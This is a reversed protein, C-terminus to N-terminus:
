WRRRSAASGAGSARCSAPSRGQWPAASPANRRAAPFRCATRRPWCGRRTAGHADGGGEDQSRDSRRQQRGTQEQQPGGGVELQGNGAQRRDVEGGHAHLRAARAGIRLGHRRRDRRRDLLPQAFDGADGLEGRHARLARGADGHLEIQRAVDIAGGAVHLRRQIRGGGIQRTIEGVHRCEALVVGRRRRHEDEGHCRLVQRGAGDVVGGIRDDGLANRLNGAHGLHLDAAGLLRRHAHADVRGQEGGHAQAHLFHAGGDGLGVGNGRDAGDVAVLLGDGDVGVRLQTGGLIVAGDDEFRAVAVDYPQRADGADLMTRAIGARDGHEVLLGAHQQDDPLLRFGVHEVRDVLHLFQDGVQLPPNRCADVNLHQRVAGRGDAGAHM